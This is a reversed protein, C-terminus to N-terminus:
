GHEFTGDGNRNLNHLKDRRDHDNASNDQGCPLQTGVEYPSPRCRRGTNAKLQPLMKDQSQLKKDSRVNKLCNEGGFPLVKRKETADDEDPGDQADANCVFYPSFFAIRVLPVRIKSRFSTTAM